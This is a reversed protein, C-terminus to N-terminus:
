GRLSLVLRIVRRANKVSESELRETLPVFAAYAQAHRGSQLLTVAACFDRMLRAANDQKLWSRRKKTTRARM